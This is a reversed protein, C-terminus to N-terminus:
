RIWWRVGRWRGTGPVPSRRRKPGSTPGSPLTMRFQAEALVLRGKVVGQRGVIGGHLGHAVIGQFHDGLFHGIGHALVRADVPGDPFLRPRM